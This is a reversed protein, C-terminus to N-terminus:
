NKKNATLYIFLIYILTLQDSQCTLLHKKVWLTCKAKSGVSATSPLRHEEQTVLAVLSTVVPHKRHHRRYKLFITVVDTGSWAWSSTMCSLTSPRVVSYLWTGCVSAMKSTSARTIPVQWTDASLCLSARVKQRSSVSSTSRRRQQIHIFSKM